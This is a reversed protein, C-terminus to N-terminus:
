LTKVSDRLILEHNQVVRLNQVEGKIMKYLIESAKYGKEYFDQRITTLSPSLHEALPNDDFGIVSIDNPISKGLERIARYAGCAMM